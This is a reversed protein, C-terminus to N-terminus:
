GFHPFYDTWELKQFVEDPLYAFSIFSEVIIYFRACVYFVPLLHIDIVLALISVLNRLTLRWKMTEKLEKYWIARIVASPSLQIVKSHALASYYLKRVLLGVIAFSAITM